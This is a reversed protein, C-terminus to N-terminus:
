NRSRGTKHNKYSFNSTPDHELKHNKDSLQFTSIQTMNRIANQYMKPTQNCTSGHKQTTNQYINTKNISIRKPDIIQNFVSLTESPNFQDNLINQHTMDLETM